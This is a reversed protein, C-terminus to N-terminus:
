SSSAPARQGHLPSPVRRRPPTANAEGSDTGIRSPILKSAGPCATMARGELAPRRPSRGLRERPRDRRGPAFPASRAEHLAPRRADASRHGDVQRGRAGQTRRPGAPSRPAHRPRPLNEGECEHLRRSIRAPAGDRHARAPRVEGLASREGATGLGVAAAARGPRRRRGGHEPARVRAARLQGALDRDARPSRRRRPRASRARRAPGGRGRRAPHGAVHGAMASYGGGLQASSIAEGDRASGGPAVIDVRVAYNSYYARARARNVAGVCLIKTALLPQACLPVGDNGAAAVVVVGAAAANEIARILADGPLLTTVVSPGASLSLNIVQAGRAVAADIGAAEQDTNGRNAADLARIALVRAGPAAGEIGIGNGKHAVIIGAVNTGHGNEDQPVDDNEIFDPGELVSGALDPHGADVGSDVVAVLVGGGISIAHATDAKVADLNWQEARLPDGSAAAVAPALAVVALALLAASGHNVM